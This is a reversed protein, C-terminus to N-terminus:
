VADSGCVCVGFLPFIVLVARLHFSVHTGVGKFWDRGLPRSLARRVGDPALLVRCSGTNMYRLRARTQRAYIESGAESESGVNGKFQPSVSTGDAAVKQPCRGFIWYTRHSPQTFRTNRDVGFALRLRACVARERPFTITDSGFFVM